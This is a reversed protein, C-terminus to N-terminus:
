QIFNLYILLLILHIKFLIVFDANELYSTLIQYESFLGKFYTYLHPHCPTQQGTMVKFLVRAMVDSLSM